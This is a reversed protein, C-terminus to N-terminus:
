RLGSNDEETSAMRAVHQDKTRVTEAQIEDREVKSCMNGERSLPGPKGCCPGTQVLRM